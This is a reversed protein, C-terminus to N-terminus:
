LTNYYQVVKLLDDEKKVKIHNTSLYGDLETRKDALVKLVDDNAKAVKIMGKSPSYIYFSEVKQLVTTGGGPTLGNVANVTEIINQYKLLMAKGSDLVQYYSNESQAGIAPFGLKFVAIGNKDNCGTFEIKKVQFGPTYEKDEENEKVYSIMNNQLNLKSRIGKFIQSESGYLTASCFDSKFYPSGEVDNKGNVRLPSGNMESLNNQAVASGAICVALVLTSVIKMM